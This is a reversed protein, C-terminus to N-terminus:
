ALASAGLGVDAPGQVPLDKLRRWYWSHRTVSTTGGIPCDSSARGEGRVIWGHESKELDFLTLGSRQAIFRQQDSPQVHSVLRGITHKIVSFRNGQNAASKFDDDIM